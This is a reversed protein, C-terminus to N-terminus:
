AVKSRQASRGEARELGFRALAVGVDDLNVSLAQRFRTSGAMVTLHQHGLKHSIRPFCDTNYRNVPCIEIVKTGSRAFILNALAAGHVAVICEASSILSVQRAFDLSEFSHTEFGHSKLLNELETENAVKRHAAEKRSIYIRRSENARAQETAPLGQKVAEAMARWADVGPHSPRILCDARLHLAYHPQILRDQPVGLLELVRRQYRCHSEIVYWDASLGAERMLMLRPVVELLWHYYNHCWPNNLVVATGELKSVAPIQRRNRLDGLWRYRWYKPNLSGGFINRRVDEDPLYYGHDAVLTNEPGLLCSHRGVTSSQKLTAVRMHLPPEAVALQTQVAGGHITTFPIAGWDAEDALQHVAVLEPHKRALEPMDALQTPAAAGRLRFASRDLPFIYKSLRWFRKTAVFPKIQEPKVM